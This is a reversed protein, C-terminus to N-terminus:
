ASVTRSCIRAHGLVSLTSASEESRKAPVASETGYSPSFDFFVVLRSTACSKPIRLPHPLVVLTLFRIAESGSAGSRQIRQKVQISGLLASITGSLPPEVPQAAFSGADRLPTAQRECRTM